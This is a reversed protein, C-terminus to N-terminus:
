KVHGPLRQGKYRVPALSSKIPREYPTVWSGMRDYLIKVAVGSSGLWEEAYNLTPENTIDGNSLNVRLIKVAYAYVNDRNAM